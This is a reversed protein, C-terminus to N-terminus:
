GDRVVGGNERENYRNHVEHYIFKEANMKKAINIGM